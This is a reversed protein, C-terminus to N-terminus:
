VILPPYYESPRVLSSLKGTIDRRQAEPLFCVERHTPDLGYMLVEAGRLLTDGIVVIRKRNVSSTKICLVPPMTKPPGVIESPGEGM